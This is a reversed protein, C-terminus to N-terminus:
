AGLQLLQSAEVLYYQKNNMVKNYEQQGEYADVVAKEESNMDKYSKKGYSPPLWGKRQSAFLNFKALLDLNTFEIHATGKKYFTQKIIKGNLDKLVVSEVSYNITNKKAKIDDELSQLIISKDM